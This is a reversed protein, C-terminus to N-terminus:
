YGVKRMTNEKKHLKYRLLKSQIKESLTTTELELQTSTMCRGAKLRVSLQLHLNDMKMTHKIILVKESVNKIELIVTEKEGAARGDNSSYIIKRM